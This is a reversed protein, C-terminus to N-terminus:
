QVIKVDPSNLQKRIKVILKEIVATKKALEIKLENTKPNSRISKKMENMIGGSVSLRSFNSKAFIEEIPLSTFLLGKLARTYYNDMHEQIDVTANKIRVIKFIINDLKEGIVYGSLLENHLQEFLSFLKYIKLNDYSTNLDDQLYEYLDAISNAYSNDFYFKKGGNLNWDSPNRSFLEKLKPIVRRKYFTFAQKREEAKKLNEQFKHLGLSVFLAILGSGIINGIVNEELTIGIINKIRLYHVFLTSGLTIGVISVILLTFNRM